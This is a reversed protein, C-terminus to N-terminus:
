KKVNCVIRKVANVFGGHSCAQRAQKLEQLVFLYEGTTRMGDIHHVMHLSRITEDDPRDPNRTVYGLASRAKSFDYFQDCPKTVDLLKLADYRIMNTSPGLEILHDLTLAFAAFLSSCAYRQEMDDAIRSCYSRKM